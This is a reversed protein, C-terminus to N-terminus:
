SGILGHAALDDVLAKVREALQPLTVTGTDFATRTATGTPAGWGTRRSTVVQTGAVQLVNGSALNLGAASLTMELVGAIEFETDSGGFAIKGAETTANVYGRFAARSANSSRMAMNAAGSGFIELNFAAAASGGIGLSGNVVHQDTGADGLTANGNCALTTAVSLSGPATIASPLALTPNGAVGSGNTVAIQNATGAITRGTFTDAATQALLGNSNYSALATLTADAPQPAKWSTGDSWNVTLTTANWAIGGKYDAAAPLDATAAQFPRLPVDWVDGLANRISSLVPKLWAPASAPEFFRRM